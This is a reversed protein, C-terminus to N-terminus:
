RKELQEMVVMTRDEDTQASGEAKEVNNNNNNNNNNNSNNSNNKAAALADRLDLEGEELDFIRQEASALRARLDAANLRESTM